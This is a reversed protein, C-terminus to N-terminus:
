KLLIQEIMDKKIIKDTTTQKSVLASNSISGIDM